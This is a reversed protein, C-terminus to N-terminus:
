AKHAMYNRDWRRLGAVTTHFQWLYYMFLDAHNHKLLVKNHVCTQTEYLIQTVHFITRKVQKEVM